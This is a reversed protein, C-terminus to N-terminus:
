RQPIIGYTRIFKTMIQISLSYATFKKVFTEKGKPTLYYVTKGKDFDSEILKNNELLHLLPYLSAPSLLIGFERHVIDIIKYGYTSRGNLMALVVIDLFTKVHKEIIQEEPVGNERIMVGLSTSTSRDLM